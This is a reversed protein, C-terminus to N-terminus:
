HEIEMKFICVTIERKIINTETYPKVYQFKYLHLMFKVAICDDQEAKLISFEVESM